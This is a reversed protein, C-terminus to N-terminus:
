EFLGYHLLNVNSNVEYKGLADNLSKIQKRHYAIMSDRKTFKVGIEEKAKRKEEIENEIDKLRDRIETLTRKIEDINSKLEDNKSKEQDYNAKITDM